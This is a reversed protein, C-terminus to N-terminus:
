KQWLPKLILWDLILKKDREDIIKSKFCVFLYAAGYCIFGLLLMQWKSTFLIKVPYACVAALVALGMIKLLMKFPFLDRFSLKFNVKTISLAYISALVAVVVSVIAPGIIGILKVSIISLIINSVVHLLSIYLVSRTKGTSTLIITYTAVRIPLLFLYIRFFLTSEVYRDTYLFTVFQESFMFLFCFLPMYLLAQKKISGHWIRVIEKFDRKKYLEAFKVRLVTNVSENLINILPIEVAGVAFVAFVSPSTFFSVIFRDIRRSIMWIMSTVGLPLSYKLQKVLLQRDWFPGIPRTKRLIYVLYLVYKFAMFIGLTYFVTELKGGIILSVLVCTSLLLQSIIGIITGLRFKKQSYIYNMFYAIGLSFFIYISFIRLYRAIEPNHFYRAIHSSSLFIISSTFLGIGALILITQIIFTRKKDESLTPVFYYISRPIGLLLIGSLTSYVLWVQRYTGYDGKTLLRVVILGCIFETLKTIVRGISIIAANNSLNEKSM